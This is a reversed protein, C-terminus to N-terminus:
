RDFLTNLERLRKTLDPTLQSWAFRFQWNGSQRGPLNMRSASGLGLIDQMPVLVTDAVSALAARILTWHMERGDTNLYRRAHEHEKEIDAASRTSADGPESNWWGLTTDNDHTGTYVVSEQAYRHPKFENVEGEAGVFAFQLISMGPYGLQERLAEVEPTILGLNEAVIPLPGLAETMATFLAAGPGPAWRGDIATTANGPVEWYAEFGRFHDLRVIDFMSLAARMRDIWWQYGQDRLTDWKYIPNGWLQGTESFYDPPVGAQVILTGDDNLEFLGRNSWVDASDHAVYIPVDGMLKIGNETCKQKLTQFQRFFVYQEFRTQALKRAHAKAFTALAAPEHAALSPAWATWASGGHVDKLASFLAFDELWPQQQAWREFRADPVFREFLKRLAIRKEVIVTGFDVDAGRKSAGTGDSTSTNTSTSTSTSTGTDTDTDAVSTGTGVGSAGAVVGTATADSGGPLSILLPNGAFASFCQYPSDGYGTPGLPLMQWISCRADALFKVFRLADPGLTGIGGPGPLSTPHLLIGSARPFKM